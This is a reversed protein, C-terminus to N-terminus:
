YQSQVESRAEDPRALSLFMSDLGARKWGRLGAGSPNRDGHDPRISSTSISNPDNGGDPQRCVGQLVGCSDVGATPGESFKLMRPNPFADSCGHNGFSVMATLCPGAMETSMSAASQLVDERPRTSDGEAAETAANGTSSSSGMEVNGADEKYMQEVMPKWLRVRANIFWNSVQSRTLGTQRALMIKEFDKPYPHLFHEFLWARLISVSTEPLGRQPRWTHQQMMGLQQLAKQQRLQQDVYRLRSIGAGRRASTEQQGLTKRTARIQDKIADRLCRFHCSIAQLALATYPRASGPGASSDFSSMAMRMQLDYQKYRGDIEDLLTLLKMLKSQLDQREAASLDNANDNSSEEPKSHEEGVMSSVENGIEAPDKESKRQKLAKRVNVLEDLLQQAAKVYRSDPIVRGMDYLEYRSSDSKGLEANGDHLMYGSNRIQERHCNENDGSSCNPSGGNFSTSSNPGFFLFRPNPNLYGVPCMKTGYPIQTRLSLSLGKGHLSQGGHIISSPGDVPHTLITGGDRWSNTSFDHLGIRSTDLNSLIEQKPPASNSVEEQSTVVCDSHRQSNVAMENPYRGSSPPCNMYYVMSNSPIPAQSYSDPLERPYVNSASDRQNNSSAFYTAM